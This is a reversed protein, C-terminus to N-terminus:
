NPLVWTTYNAPTRNYNSILASLDTINLMNDKNLDYEARYNANPSATNYRSILASLDTINISGDNNMDGPILTIPTGVLSVAVENGSVTINSITRVLYGSRSVEISYTGDAVNPITFQGTANTTVSTVTTAGNKLIINTGSKNGAMCTVYGTLGGNQVDEKIVVALAKTDSVSHKMVTANLTVTVDGSGNAPRVVTVVGTEVNITVNDSNESWVIETGNAGVVPVTFSQTVSDKNDGDAFDFDTEDLADIDAAVAEPDTMSTGEYIPVLDSNAALFDKFSQVEEPNDNVIIQAYMLLKEFSSASAVEGVVENIKAMVSEAADLLESAKTDVNSPVVGNRFRFEIEDDNSGDFAVPGVFGYEDDYSLEVTDRLLKIVMQLGRNDGPDGTIEGNIKYRITDFGSIGTIDYLGELVATEAADKKSGSFGVYTVLANEVTTSDLESTFYSMAEDVLGSATDENAGETDLVALINTVFDTRTEDDLSIAELVLKQLGSLVPNLVSIYGNKLVTPIEATGSEGSAAQLLPKVSDGDPMHTIEVISYNIPENGTLSFTLNCVTDTDWSGETNTFAIGISGTTNATEISGLELTITDTNGSTVEELEMDDNDYVILFQGGIASQPNSVKVPVVFSSESTIDSVSEIFLEATGAAHVTEPMVTFCATIALLLALSIALLRNRFIM